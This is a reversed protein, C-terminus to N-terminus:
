TSGVWPEHFKIAWRCINVGDGTRESGEWALQRPIQVEIGAGVGGEGTMTQLLGGWRTLKETLMSNLWITRSLFVNQLLEAPDVRTVYTPLASVRRGWLPPALRWKNNCKYQQKGQALNFFFLIISQVWTENETWNLETVWDHGVRQSGVSQLVGSRGTWWWSRSNVWSIRSHRMRFHPSYLYDPFTLVNPLFCKKTSM